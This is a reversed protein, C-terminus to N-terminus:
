QIDIPYNQLVKFNQTNQSYESNLEKITFNQTMSKDHPLDFM